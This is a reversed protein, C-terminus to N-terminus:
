KVVRLLSQQQNRGTQKFEEHVQSSILRLHTGVDANINSVQGTNGKSHEHTLEETPSSSGGTQNHSQQNHNHWLLCSEVQVEMGATLRALYAEQETRFVKADELTGFAEPGKYGTYYGKFPHVLLYHWAKGVNM